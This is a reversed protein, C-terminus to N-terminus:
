RLITVNGSLVRDGLKLVFSYSGMPLLQGGSTGDWADPYGNAIESNFVRSGNRNYIEIKGSTNNELPYKWTEGKSPYFLYEYTGCDKEAIIVEREDNGLCGRRDKIFITYAGAYLNSFTYGSYYNRGDLSFEFPSQGAIFSNKDIKITGSPSDICSETTTVSLLSSDLRCPTNESKDEEKIDEYVEPTTNQQVDKKSYHPPVEIQAEESPTATEDINASTDTIGIGSVSDPKIVEKISPHETQPNDQTKDPKKQILKPQDIEKAANVIRQSAGNENKILWGVTAVSSVFFISAYIRWRRFGNAPGSYDFAQMKKKIELLGQDMTLEHLIGHNNVETVFEADEKLKQEFNFLDEGSLQNNLFREIQEYTKLEDRM